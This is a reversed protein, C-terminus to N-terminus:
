DAPRAAAPAAETPIPRQHELWTRLWSRRSCVRKGIKFTPIRGDRCLHDTQDESLDLARAIARVGYLLDLDSPPTATEARTM